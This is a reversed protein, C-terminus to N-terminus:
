AKIYNKIEEYDRDCDMCCYVKKDFHYIMDSRSFSDGCLCCKEQEGFSPPLHDDNGMSVYNEIIM